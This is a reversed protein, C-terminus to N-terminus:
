SVVFFMLMDFCTVHGSRHVNIARCYMYIYTYTYIFYYVKSFFIILTSNIIYYKCLCFVYM